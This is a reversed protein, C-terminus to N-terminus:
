YNGERTVTLATKLFDHNKWLDFDVVYEEEYQYNIIDLSVSDIDYSEMVKILKKLEEITIEMEM